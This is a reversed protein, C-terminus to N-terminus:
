NLGIEGLRLPQPRHRQVSPLIQLLLQNLNPRQIPRHIRLPTKHIRSNSSDPIRVVRVNSGSTAASSFANRLFPRGNLSITFSTKRSPSRSSRLCGDGRGYRVFDQFMPSLGPRLRSLIASSMARISPSSQFHHHKLEGSASKARKRPSFHFFGSTHITTSGRQLRGLRAM